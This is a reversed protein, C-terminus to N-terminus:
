KSKFVVNVIGTRDEDFAITAGSPSVATVHTSGSRVDTTLQATDIPEAFRVDLVGRGRDTISSVNASDYLVLNGGGIGISMSTVGARSAERAPQYVFIQTRQDNYTYHLRSNDRATLMTTSDRDEIESDETAEADSAEGGRRSLRWAAVLVVVAAVSALVALVLESLPM